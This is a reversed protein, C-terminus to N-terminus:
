AADQDGIIADLCEPGMMDAIFDGIMVELCEILLVERQADTRLEERMGRFINGKKAEIMNNALYDGLHDQVYGSYQSEMISMIMRDVNGKARVASSTIPTLTKVFAVVDNVGALKASEAAEFAAKLSETPLCTRRAAKSVSEIFFRYKDINKEPTFDLVGEEQLRRCEENIFFSLNVAKGYRWYTDLAKMCDKKYAALMNSQFEDEVTYEPISYLYGHLSTIPLALYKMDPDGSVELGIEAPSIQHVTLVRSSLLTREEIEWNLGLKDAIDQAFVTPEGRWMFTVIVDGWPMKVARINRNTDQAKEINM